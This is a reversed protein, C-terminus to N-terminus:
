YSCHQLTLPFSLTLTPHNLIAAGKIPYKLLSKFSLHRPSSYELCLSCGSCLRQPLLIRGTHRSCFPWPLAHSSILYSTNSAPSNVTVDSGSAMTCVKTKVRLHSAKPSKTCLLSVTQNVDAQMNLM